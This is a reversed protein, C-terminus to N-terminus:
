WSLAEAEAAAEAEPPLAEAAAAAELEPVYVWCREGVKQKADCKLKIAPHEAAATALESGISTCISSAEAHVEKAQM